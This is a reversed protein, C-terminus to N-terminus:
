NPTGINDEGRVKDGRVINLLKGTKKSWAFIRGDDSGSM